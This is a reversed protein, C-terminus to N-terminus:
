KSFRKIFKFGLGALIVAAVIPGLAPVVGILMTQADSAVSSALTTMASTITSAAEGELLAFYAPM